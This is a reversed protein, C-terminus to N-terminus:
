IHILSLSVVEGQTVELSIDKLVMTDGFSKEVNKLSLIEKSMPAIEEGRTM